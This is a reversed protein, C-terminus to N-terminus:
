VKAVNFRHKKGELASLEQQLKNKEVELAAQRQRMTNFQATALKRTEKRNGKQAVAATTKQKAKVNSSVSDISDDTSVTITRSNDRSRRPLSGSVCDTCGKTGRKVSKKKICNRSKCFESNHCNEYQENQYPKFFLPLNAIMSNAGWRRNFSTSANMLAANGVACLTIILLIKKM